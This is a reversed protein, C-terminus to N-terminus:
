STSKESLFKQVTKDLIVERVTKDVSIFGYRELFRVVQRIQNKDLKTKQQIEKLTHWRGDILMELVKTMRSTTFADELSYM